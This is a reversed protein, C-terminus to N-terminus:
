KCIPDQELIDARDTLTLVMCHMLDWGLSKIDECNQVIFVINKTQRQLDTPDGINLLSGGM